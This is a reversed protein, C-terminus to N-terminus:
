PSVVDRKWLYGAPPIVPPSTSAHCTSSRSTRSASCRAFLRNADHRWSTCWAAHFLLEALLGTIMHGHDPNVWIPVPGDPDHGTPVVLHRIHSAPPRGDSDPYPIFVGDIDLLLWPLPM